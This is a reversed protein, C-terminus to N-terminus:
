LGPRGSGLGSLQVSQELIEFSEIRRVGEIAEIQSVLSGGAWIEVETPLLARLARLHDRAAGAESAVMSLAVAAAGTVTAAHVLEEVPLDAGLYIVRGGAAAATIAAVLLGLEHREGPLTAFLIPAGATAVSSPRLSAGLVSRLVASAMHEAAVCMEGAAWDTGIRALVPVAVLRAFRSPGLAALQLAILREATEADMRTLAAVIADCVDTSSEREDRKSIIRALEEPGLRAVDGIRYGADVAAKVQRLREVDSARYRRTGGETRLPVVIGHRREWARLTDPHLGTLRVTAGVPYTMEDTGSKSGSKVVGDGTRHTAM